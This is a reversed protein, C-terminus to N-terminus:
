ESDSSSSASAAARAALKADHAALLQADYSAKRQAERQSILRGRTSAQFDALQNIYQQREIKDFRELDVPITSGTPLYTPTFTKMAGGNKHRNLMERLPISMDPVTMSMGTNSELTPGPYNDWTVYHKM